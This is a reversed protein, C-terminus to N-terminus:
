TAIVALRDDRSPLVESAADDAGNCLISIKASVAVGPSKDTDAHLSKCNFAMPVYWPSAPGRSKVGIVLSTSQVTSLLTLPLIPLLLSISLPKNLVNVLPVIPTWALRSPTSLASVLTVAFASKDDIAIVGALLVRATFPVSVNVAVPVYESVEVVSIVFLVAQVLLSGITASKLVGLELLKIVANAVPVVITVAVQPVSGCVAVSPVVPRVTLTLVTM